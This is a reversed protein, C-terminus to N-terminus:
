LQPEEVAPSEKGHRETFESDKREESIRKQYAEKATLFLGLHHMKGNRRIFAKFKKACKDYSVGNYGSTNNKSKSANKSNVTRTVIRLNKFRNDTADGNIHDVMMGEPIDIGMCAFAIRHGSAHKGFLTVQIYAYGPLNKVNKRSGARKNAYRANWSNCSRDSDFFSRDRKRWFVEGTDSNYRLLRKITNNEASM